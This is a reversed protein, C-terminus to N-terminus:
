GIHLDKEFQATTVPSVSGRRFREVLEQIRQRAATLAEDLTSFSASAEQDDAVATGFIM